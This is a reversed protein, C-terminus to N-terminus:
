FEDLDHPEPFYGVKVSSPRVFGGYKMLCQFYQKGKVSGDNKGVPEDYQIGVWYGTQFEVLGVYKITGTRQPQNKVEVQCRDGVKFSEALAQEEKEKEEISKLNEKNKFENINKLNKEKYTRFNDTKKAYEQESMQYREEVDARTLYDPAVVSDDTVHLIFGNEVPYSGLLATDNDMSCVSKNEQYLQLKMNMTAGTLLILKMKLDAITLDKPFRKITTISSINSTISLEVYPSTVVTFNGSM